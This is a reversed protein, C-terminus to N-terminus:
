AEKIKITGGSNRISRTVTCAGKYRVSGGSTAKAALEKNVTIELLGGSSVKAECTETAMEYGSLNAGSSCNVELSAATGKLKSYAGSNQNVSLAACKITGEFNSGSTFEAVLNGTSFVGDIRMTAGGSASLKNLTRASVYARLKSKRNDNGKWNKEPKFYIKLVGDVVETVIRDRYDTYAASVSVADTSGQKLVLQIGSSVSLGTFPGVERQIANADDIVLQDNQAQAAFMLLAGLIGTVIKKM